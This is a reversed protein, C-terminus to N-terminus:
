SPGRRAASSDAVRAPRRRGGRAARAAGAAAVVRRRRRPRRVDGGRPRRVAVTDASRRPARRANAEGRGRRDPHRPPQQRRALRLRRVRRRLRDRREPRHDARGGRLDDRGHRRARLLRLRVARRTRRLRVAVARRHVGVGRRRSAVGVALLWWSTTAALALGAVAAVRVGGAGGAQGRGAEGTGLRGPAAPRGSRRRHRARRRLLRQRLQGRGALRPQRGVGAGGAVMLDFGRRRCLRHRPRGPRDGGAADPRAGAGLLWRNLDTTAIVPAPVQHCRHGAFEDGEVKGGARREDVGQPLHPVTAVGGERDILAERRRRPRRLQRGQSDADNTSSSPVSARSAPPRGIASPSARTTAVLPEVPSGFPTMSVWAATAAEASADLARSPTVPSSWQSAQRGSDCTPPSATTVRASSVPVRSVTSGRKSGAATAAEDAVSTLRTAVVSAGSRRSGTGRWRARRRPAARRRAPWRRRRGIPHGLGAAADDVVAHREVADVDADGVIAFDVDAARHQQAGVAAGIRVDVRAGVTPQRRAVEATPEGVSAEVDVASADVQDDAAALVHPRLGDLPRDPAVWPHRVHGHGAGRVGLPALQHRRVHDRRGVAAGVSSSNRPATRSTSGAYQAGRSSCTTSASGSSMARCAVVITAAVLLLTVTSM